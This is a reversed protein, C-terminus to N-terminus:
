AIDNNIWTFTVYKERLKHEKFCNKFERHQTKGNNQQIFYLVKNRNGSPLTFNLFFNL